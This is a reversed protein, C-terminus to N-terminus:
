VWITDWLPYDAVQGVIGARVPNGIIYRAIGVVDEDSRIARDYFGKQWFQGIRSNRRNIERATLSKVNNVATSFHRSTLLQFLWHLHDPMVVFALSKVHGCREERALYKVLMRGIEFDSFWRTREHTATTVHYIRNRASYRGTRLTVTGRKRSSTPMRVIKDHM